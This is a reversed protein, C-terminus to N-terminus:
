QVRAARTQRSKDKAKHSKVRLQMLLDPQFDKRTLQAVCGTIPCMMNPERSLLRMIHEKEFVHKCNLSIVPDVFYNLSLPDKLSIKGGEMALDEDVQEDPLPDEPHELVFLSNKAYQYWADAKLVADYEHAQDLRDELDKSIADAFNDQTMECYSSYNALTIEEELRQTSIITSHAQRLASQVTLLRFKTRTLEAYAHTQQVIFRAAEELQTLPYNALDEVFGDTIKKIASIRDDIEKQFQSNSFNTNVRLNPHIPFYQPVNLSFDPFSVIQKIERESNIELM